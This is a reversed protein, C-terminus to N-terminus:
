IHDYFRNSFHYREQKAKEEDAFLQGRHSHLVPANQIGLWWEEDERFNDDSYASAKM